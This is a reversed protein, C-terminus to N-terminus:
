PPGEGRELLERAAPHPLPGDSPQSPLAARHVTGYGETLWAELGGDLLVADEVGWASLAELTEEECETARCYVLVTVGEYARLEAGHEAFAGRPVNHAGALHGLPGHFQEAPRLDLIPLYPADRLMTFAVGPTVAHRLPEGDSTSRCGAAGVLVFAPLVLAM